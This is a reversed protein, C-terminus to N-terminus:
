GDYEDRRLNSEGDSASAFPSWPSFREEMEDERQREARAEAADEAAADYEDQEEDSLGEDPGRLKWADYGPLPMESM